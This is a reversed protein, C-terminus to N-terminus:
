GDPERVLDGHQMRDHGPGHVPGGGAPVAPTRCPHPFDLNGIVGPTNAHDTSDRDRHSRGRRPLGDTIRRVKTMSRSSDARPTGALAPACTPTGIGAAQGCWRASPAASEGPSAWDRRAWAFTSM